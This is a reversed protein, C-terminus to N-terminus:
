IFQRKFCTMSGGLSRIFDCVVPIKSRFLSGVGREGSHELVFELFNGLELHISAESFLQKFRTTALNLAKVNTEFGYVEM